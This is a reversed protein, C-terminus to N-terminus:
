HLLCHRLRFFMKSTLNATIPFALRARRVKNLGNELALWEEKRGAAGGKGGWTAPFHILMLDVYALGLQELAQNLSAETASSNLGGPIKSTVFFENRPLNSKKLAAGM